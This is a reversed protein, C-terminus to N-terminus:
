RDADRRAPRDIAGTAIVMACQRYTDALLEGARLQFQQQWRLGEENMAVEEL